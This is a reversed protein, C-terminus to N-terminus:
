KFFATFDAKRVIFTLDQECNIIDPPMSPLHVHVPIVRAHRLKLNLSLRIDGGSVQNWSVRVHDCSQDSAMGLPITAEFTRYLCIRPKFEIASWAPQAPRIGAVEALFEHIPASGWAHCDSRQSVSDEEWTTLGSALQERWPDWFRHFYENYLQGGALSLARLVYFSMSVSTVVIRDEENLSLCRRLIEEASKGSAAGSLVAWAQNLQSHHIVTETETKSYVSDTFLEGDFCHQRVAQVIRSARSCYEEALAHRGVGEVLSGALKLTYAYLNNTYTSVSNKKVTPPIGYPRWEDAWDHYNWMRQRKDCTVLQLDPHLHSDFYNLIADVVPLFRKVFLRDGYYLWHDCLTCIWYLSYHPIIQLSHSPARSATLGIRAQFSDHLQLIAQRALRDDGSVYYTFLISSRTDMAYQLQEYFPCDEYCDHMCNILTRISTTWLPEVDSDLPINLRASVDLPYNVSQISIGIMQLDSGIAKVNLRIFRFTRFHFPVLIEETKEQHEYELLQANEYGRLQYIDKPGFLRKSYDKRHGKRRLYPIATPEDEYSEAYTLTVVSGGRIPRQFRIKLFATMHHAVELDVQHTTGALLTVTSEVGNTADSAKSSKSPCSLMASWSEQTADSKLNQLACFKVGQIAQEPIM